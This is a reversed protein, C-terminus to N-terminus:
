KAAGPMRLNYYFTFNEIWALVQDSRVYPYLKAIEDAFYARNEKQLVTAVIFPINVSEIAKGLVCVACLQTLSITPLWLKARDAHASTAGFLSMWKMVPEPAASPCNFTWDNQRELGIAVSHELEARPMCSFFDIMPYHFAVLSIPDSPSEGHENLDSLLKDALEASKTKVPKGGPTTLVRGNTHVVHWDEERVLSYM